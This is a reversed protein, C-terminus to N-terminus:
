SQTAYPKTIAVIDAFDEKTISGGHFESGDALCDIESKMCGILVNLTNILCDGDLPAYTSVLENYFNSYNEKQEETWTELRMSMNFVREFHNDRVLTQMIYLAAKSNQYGFFQEGALLILEVYKQNRTVAVM